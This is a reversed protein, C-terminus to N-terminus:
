KGGKPYTVEVQAGNPGISLLKIAVGPHVLTQGVPLPHNLMDNGNNSDPTADIMVTESPSFYWGEHCSIGYHIHVGNTAMPIGYQSSEFFQDWGYSQRIELCLHLPRDRGKSPPVVELQQIGGPMWELPLITYTGATTVTQTQEPPLWGLITRHIANMTFYSSNGMVDYRDAYNRMYCTGDRVSFTVQVNNKNFCIYDNAHGVGLTHGIEHSIVAPYIHGTTALVNIYVDNGSAKGSYGCGAGTWMYVRVDYSAWDIGQSAAQERVNMAWTSAPCSTGKNFPVTFWGLVDGYMELQGYSTDRYYATPSDTDVFMEQYTAEPTIVQQTDDQWNVLFVGVKFNGEEASASSLPVLSLFGALLLSLLKKM